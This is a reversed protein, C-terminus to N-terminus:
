PHFTHGPYPSPPMPTTPTPIEATPTTPIVTVELSDVFQHTPIDFYFTAGHTSVLTLRLGSEDVIRLSGVRTPTYYRGSPSSGLVIVLGQEPDEYLSGAFVQVTEGNVINQWYNQITVDGSYFAGEGGEFIGTSFPIAEVTPPAPALTPDKPATPPPNEGGSQFATYTAEIDVIPVMTLPTTSTQVQTGAVGSTGVVTSLVQSFIVGLIFLATVGILLPWISESKTKHTKM